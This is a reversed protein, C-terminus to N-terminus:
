RGKIKRIAEGDKTRIYFPNNSKSLKLYKVVDSEQDTFQLQKRDKKMNSYFDDNSVDFVPLRNHVAQAKVEPVDTEVGGEPTSVSKSMKDADSAPTEGKLFEGSM